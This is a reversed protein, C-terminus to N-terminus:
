QDDDEDGELIFAIVEEWGQITGIASANLQYTGEKSPDTFRGSKWQEILKDIGQDLTELLHQTQPM